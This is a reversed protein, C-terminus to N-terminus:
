HLCAAAWTTSKNSTIIWRLEIGFRQTRPCLHYKSRARWHSLRTALHFHAFSVRIDQPYIIASCVLRHATPIYPLPLESIISFVEAPQRLLSFKFQIKFPICSKLFIYPLFYWQTPPTSAKPDSPGPSSSHGLEESETYYQTLKKVKEWRVKRMQISPLLIQMTSNKHLHSGSLLTQCLVQSTVPLKTVWTFILPCM